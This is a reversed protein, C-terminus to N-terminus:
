FASIQSHPVYKAKCKGGKKTTGSCSTATHDDCYHTEGVSFNNCPSSDTTACCLRHRECTNRPPEGYLSEKASEGLELCKICAHEGCYSQKGALRPNPCEDAACAHDECLHKKPCVPQTCGRKHCCHFECLNLGKISISTCQKENDIYSCQPSPVFGSMWRWIIENPDLKGYHKIGDHLMAFTDKFASTAKLLIRGNIHEYSLPQAEDWALKSNDTLSSQFLVKLAALVRTILDVLVDVVAYDKKEHPSDDDKPTPEPRSLLLRTHDKLVQQCTRRLQYIHKVDDLCRNVEPKSQVFNREGYKALRPDASKGGGVRILNIRREKEVLDLVFEDIAHNKYSLVLIPPSGVDPRASIWLSRIIMLARVLVVGLYSKGTGPPGQTCHVTSMLAAVFSRLQGQDLTASEVLATLQSILRMRYAEKRRLQAIPDLTSEDVMKTVLGGLVTITTSDTSTDDSGYEDDSPTSALATPKPGINLLQGDTFPIGNRKQADLAKLVPIYEPSFTKCDIIAVRDGKQLEFDMNDLQLDLLSVALKGKERLEAEKYPADNRNHVVIEAWWIRDSDLLSTRGLLLYIFSYRSITINLFKGMPLKIIGVLNPSSLRSTTRWHIPMSPPRRSAVGDMHVRGEWDVSIDLNSVYRSHFFM